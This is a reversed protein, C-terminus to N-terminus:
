RHSNSSIQEMDRVTEFMENVESETSDVFDSARESDGTSEEGDHGFADFYEECDSESPDAFSHGKEMRPPSQFPTQQGM